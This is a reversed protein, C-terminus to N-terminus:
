EKLLHHIRALIILESKNKGSFSDAIEHCTVLIQHIREKTFLSKHEEFYAKFKEFTQESTYQDQILARMTEYIVESSKENEIAESFFRETLQVIKKKEEKEFNKDANAVAYFLCALHIYFDREM